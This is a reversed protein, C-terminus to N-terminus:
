LISVLPMFIIGQITKIASTQQLCILQHIQPFKEKLVHFSRLSGAKGAKVEVAIIKGERVIIYDVEANSSKAARIWCYLARDESASASEALLQQGVFQEALRGEYLALLNDSELTETPSFGAWKQGLGIDFFILKFVKDSAEAGLPLGSPNVSCVKALLCAKELLELSMKTRRIDADPLLTTYKIQKGVHRIASELLKELNATQLPGSAYKHIDDKFTRLIRDQELGAAM